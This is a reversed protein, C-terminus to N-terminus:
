KHYVEKGSVFTQRLTGNKDLRIFDAWKGVEIRGTRNGLGMADAPSASLMHAIDPLPIGLSTLNGLAAFLSSASGAITGNELYALGDKVTFTRGDFVTTSGPALGACFESDSVATFGKAGKLKYILEVTARDLHAFDCIVECTVRPDTLAEGLVGPDRHNFPRCANFTHTMRSLGADVAAKMQAFTADTHGASVQVDQLVAERIVDIAGEKEPALTMLCLLDGCAEHIEEFASVSPEAVYAPNMAGKREANIFPGEAHIGGIRAGVPNERITRRVNGVCAAIRDTPLTHLTAAVTTVGQTAEYALIDSLEATPDSFLRCVAGHTHSDVLGPFLLDNEFDVTTEGNVPALFEKIESFVGDTVRVDRRRVDTESVVYANRILM